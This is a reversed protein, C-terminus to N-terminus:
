LGALVVPTFAAGAPVQVTQQGGPPLFLDVVPSGDFTPVNKLQRASLGLFQGYQKLSLGSLVLRGLIFEGTNNVVIVELFKKGHKKVTEVFVTVLNASLVTGAPVSANPIFTSPPTAPDTPVVVSVPAGATVSGPNADPSTVTATVTQGGPTTGALPVSFSVSQGAALAGVTFTTGALPALGAPLTVALTTNDAPLANGSTNTVAVSVVAVQGLTVTVPTVQVALTVAQFEFAGIDVRGPVIPFGREDTAPAGNGVGGGIAPSGALLAETQVVQQEGPAGALFGGNNALPGLEPNGTLTGAGFGTVGNLNDILNGGKDVFRVGNADINPGTPATNLAIITNQVDFVQGGFGHSFTFLAGGSMGATNGTITDNLLTAPGSQQIDLAGGGVAATNGTFTDSTLTVTTSGVDQLAGAEGASNNNFTSGTVNLTTGEFFVAGGNGAANATFQLQSITLTGRADDIAGGNGNGGNNASNGVFLDQTFTATGAGGSVEVAGGFGGPGVINGDGGNAGLASNTDFTSQTATLTAALDNLGGGNAATNHRFVDETLQVAQGNVSLGGGDGAATNGDFVTGSITTQPGGEQIGGGNGAATNDLFTCNSVTLDGTNAADGFGGGNGGSFNDEVTCGTLAVAGAGANGIGGGLMTIARNNSVVDDTMNLSAGGADLWVGAGQNVCTNETITSDNITVLGTGDTEVGGGADGAHNNAITSDTITLTGISDNNVSELAIGGGDATATNGTLVDNDLAISAAGQARIGGGSGQDADGPSASGHQITLGRFTVTFATKNDAGPNVDFVRAIGGGDVAVTGGSTNQITLDGEPLIAFEGAQNDTENTTTPFLQIQYLGALALNITNGGPTNNAAQIASRLTVVGTDQHMANQIQGNANDVGNAISLDQLSNVTYVAPVHRDELAEITLRTRHRATSPPVRTLRDRRFLSLWNM